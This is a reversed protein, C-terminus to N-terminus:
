IFVFCILNTKRQSKYQVNVYSCCFWVPCVLIPRAQHPDTLRPTPPPSNQWADIAAFGEALANPLSGTEANAELFQSIINKYKWEVRRNHNKDKKNRDGKIRNLSNSFDTVADHHKLFNTVVLMVSDRKRM